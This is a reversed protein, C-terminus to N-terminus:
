CSESKRGPWSASSRGSDHLGMCRRHNHRKCKERRDRWYYTKSYALTGPNFTASTQNGQFTGPSSTGFYVDHSTTGSGATWSLTATISVGTASNGPNPSVAKSPPPPPATTTFSWVTGQTTGLASVEDIRWYYTTSYALTGPDFTAATQNAQFAPSSATGFYVDHSTAGPGATWNLASNTAVNSAGAAPIPNSAKGSQTTFSWVTGKYTDLGNVEDVRWYYTTSFALLGPNFSNVDHNGKFVPGASQLWEQSFQAYDIFDVISDDNIAAYPESGAPNELWYGTLYMVDKCNVIGDGNLDSVLRTTSNVDSFVTGLYVDHSVAGAGPTWDLIKNFAVNTASSAPEPNRATRIIAATVTTKGANTINYDYLVTGAGGYAKIKGSTIYGNVTSTVDGNIILKGNTIDMSATGSNGMSFSFSSGNCNITGGYLYVRGVGTSNYGIRFRTGTINLTGGNMNLTGTGSYGVYLYQGCTVTGSNITLTGTTGADYGVDIRASSGSTTLTGGNVDAAAGSASRIQITNAVAAVGSNIIPGSALSVVATDSSTPLRNLDWNATVNWARSSSGDWTITAASGIVSFSSIFLLVFTIRSFM